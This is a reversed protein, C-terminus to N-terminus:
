RVSGDLRAQHDLSRCISHYHGSLSPPPTLELLSQVLDHDSITEATSPGGTGYVLSIEKQLWLIRSRLPRSLRVSAQPLRVAAPFYHEGFGSFSIRVEHATSRLLAQVRDLEARALTIQGLEKRDRGARQNLCLLSWKAIPTDRWALQGRVAQPLTLRELSAQNTRVYHLWQRAAKTHLPVRITGFIPSDFEGWVLPQGGLDHSRLPLLRFSAGHNGCLEFGVPTGKPYAFDVLRTPTDPLPEEFQKGDVVSLAKDRCQDAKCKDSRVILRGVAPVELCGDHGYASLFPYVLSMSSSPTEVHVSCVNMVWDALTESHSRPLPSLACAWDKNKALPLLELDTPFNPDFSTHWVLFYAQGWVLRRVRPKFRRPASLFASVALKSLGPHRQTITERYAPDTEPSCWVASYDAANPDAPYTQPSRSLKSLAITRKSAGFDYTIAGRGDPSKPITLCLQWQPARGRRRSQRNEVEIAAEVPTIRLGHAAHSPGDREPRRHPDPPSQGPTYLDCERSATDHIHAFHAARQQGSRLFVEGRCTPCRYARYRSGDAAHVLTGTGSDIAHWM